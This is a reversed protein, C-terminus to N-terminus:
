SEDDLYALLAAQDAEPLAGFSIGLGPPAKPESFARVWAVTAEAEIRTGVGPLEFELRLKEGVDLLVETKLFCGGGSVDVSTFHLVGQGQDDRATFQVAVTKRAWRRLDTTMHSLGNSVNVGWSALGFM